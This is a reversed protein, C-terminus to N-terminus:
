WITEKCELGKQIGDGIEKTHLQDKDLALPCSNYEGRNRSPKKKTVWM